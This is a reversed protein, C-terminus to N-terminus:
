SHATPLALGVWSLFAGHRFFFLEVSDAASVAGGGTRGASVRGVLVGGKGIDGSARGKAGKSAIEVAAPGHPASVFQDRVRAQPYLAWEDGGGTGAPEGRM